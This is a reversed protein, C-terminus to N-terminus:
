SLWEIEEAGHFAAFNEVNRELRDRYEETEKFSDENWYGRIILKKEKRDMKPEIRAVLTDGYLIPLTYYGYVRQDVPVYIELKPVFGTLHEIRERNWMLNDFYIM